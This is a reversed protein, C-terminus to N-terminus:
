FSMGQDTFGKDYMANYDGDASHGTEDYGDSNYGTDYGNAEVDKAHELEALMQPTIKMENDLKQYTASAFTLESDLLPYVAHSEVEFGKRALEDEVTRGVISSASYPMDDSYIVVFARSSRTHEDSSPTIFISQKGNDEAGLEDGVAVEIDSVISQLYAGINNADGKAQRFVIKGGNELTSTHNISCPLLENLFTKDGGFRGAEKGIQFEKNPYLRTHIVDNTKDYADYEPDFVDPLVTKHCEDSTLGKVSYDPESFDHGNFYPAKPRDVDFVNPNLMKHKSVMDEIYSDRQKDYSGEVIMEVAYDVAKDSMTPFEKRIGDYLYDAYAAYRGNLDEPDVGLSEKYAAVDIPQIKKIFQDSFIRKTEDAVLDKYENKKPADDLLDCIIDVNDDTFPTTVEKYNEIWARRTKEDVKSLRELSKNSLMNLGLHSIIEPYEDILHEPVDVGLISYHAKKM